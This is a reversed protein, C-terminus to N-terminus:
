TGLTEAKYRAVTATADDVFWKFHVEKPQLAGITHPPAVVAPICICMICNTYVDLGTDSTM